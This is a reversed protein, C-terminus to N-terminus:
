RIIASRNPHNFGLHYFGMGDCLFEIEKEGTDNPICIVQCPFTFNRLDDGHFLCKKEYSTSAGRMKDPYEKHFRDKKSCEQVFLSLKSAFRISNRCNSECFYFLTFESRFHQYKNYSGVNELSNHLTSDCSLGLHIEEGKGSSYNAEDHRHNCRLRRNRRRSTSIAESTCRQRGPDYAYYSLQSDLLAIVGRASKPRQQRSM